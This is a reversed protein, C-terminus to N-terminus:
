QWGVLDACDASQEGFDLTGVGGYYYAAYRGIASAADGTYTGEAVTQALGGTVATVSLEYGSGRRFCYGYLDAVTPVAVQVVSGIESVTVTRVPNAVTVTEVPNGVTVTIGSLLIGIITILAALQGIAVGLLIKIRM